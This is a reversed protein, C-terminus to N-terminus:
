KRAFYLKAFAAANARRGQVNIANLELMRKYWWWCGAVVFGHWWQHSSGWVDFRGDPWVREPFYSLYWAFGAGFLGWMGAVSRLFAKRRPDQRPMRQAFHLVIVIGWTAVLVLRQKVRQKEM